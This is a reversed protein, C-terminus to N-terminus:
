STSDLMEKVSKTSDGGKENFNFFAEIYRLLIETCHSLNDGISITLVREVWCSYDSVNEDEM